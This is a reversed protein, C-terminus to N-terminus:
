GGMRHRIIIQKMKLLASFLKTPEAKVIKRNKTEFREWFFSLYQKKLIDPAKKYASYINRTFKLMRRVETLKVERQQELENLQDEVYHLDKDFKEKNRTFDEDSIVGKFLKEEAVVSQAPHPNVTKM